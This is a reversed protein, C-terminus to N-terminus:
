EAGVERVLGEAQLEDLFPRLDRACQDADVEYEKILVACLDQRTRPSELLQWVRTGVPDTGFYSNKQVSLLVLEGDVECNPM